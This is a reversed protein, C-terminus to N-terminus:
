FAYETWTDISNKYANPHSGIVGDHGNGTVDNFQTAGPGENMPLYMILDPSTYAVESRMNNQIQAASRTTKWLRVQCMEINSRIMDGSLVNMREIRMPRGAGTNLTAVAQGDKYLISDGTGGDYSIAFHYWQDTKLDYGQTPNGTDFQSGMTKIQLFRNDYSRGDSYILDGFRIYLETNGSGSDFLAQNNSGLFDVKCWWELTYNMLEYEWPGNVAMGNYNREFTPCLQKLPKVLAIIYKSSAEAVPVSGESTIRFSVAYQAGMTDFSKVTMTIPDSSVSGAKIVVKGPLEINEKAVHNYSAEYSKNYAELVDTDLAVKVTIDETAEHALRVTFNIKTDGEAMMTSGIKGTAADSIYVMNDIVQYGADECSAMSAALVILAFIKYINKM